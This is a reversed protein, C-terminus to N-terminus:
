AIHIQFGNPESRMDLFADRIEEAGEQDKQFDFEVIEADFGLTEVGRATLLVRICDACLTVCTALGSGGESQDARELWIGELPEEDDDHFGCVIHLVDERGYKESTFGLSLWIEWDTTGSKLSHCSFRNM